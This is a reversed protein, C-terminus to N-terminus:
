LSAPFGENVLASQDVESKRRRPLPEIRLFLARHRAALMEIAETKLVAFSDRADPWDSQSHLCGEVWRIQRQAYARALDDGSDKVDNYAAALRQAPTSERARSEIAAASPDRDAFLPVENRVSLRHALRFFEGIRPDAEKDRRLIYECLENAADPTATRIRFAIENFRKDLVRATRDRDTAM